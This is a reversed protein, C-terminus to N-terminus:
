YIWSSNWIKLQKQNPAWLGNQIIGDLTKSPRHSHKHFLFIDLRTCVVCSYSCNDNLAFKEERENASLGGRLRSFYSGAFLKRSMRSTTWRHKAAFFISSMRLHFRVKRKRAIARAQFHCFTLYENFFLSPSRHYFLWQIRNDCFITIQWHRAETKPKPLYNIQEGSVFWSIKSFRTWYNNIILRSPSTM